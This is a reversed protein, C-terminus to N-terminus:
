WRLVSIKEGVSGMNWGGGHFYILTRMLEGDRKNPPDHRRVVVDDIYIDTYHCRPTITKSALYVVGDLVNRQIAAGNLGLANGVM